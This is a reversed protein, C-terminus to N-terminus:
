KLPIKDIEIVEVGKGGCLNLPKVVIKEKDKIFEKILTIKFTPLPALTSLKLAPPIYVKTLSLPSTKTGAKYKEEFFEYADPLLHLVGLLILM